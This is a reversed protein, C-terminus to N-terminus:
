DKFTKRVYIDYGIKKKLIAYDGDEVIKGGNLINDIVYNKEEISDYINLENLKSILNSKILEGKIDPNEVKLENLLYLPTNDLNKDFKLGIIGNDKELEKIETYIKSLVYKKCNEKKLLEGLESKEKFVKTKKQLETEIKAIESQIQKIKETKKEKKKTDIQLDYIYLMGHGM